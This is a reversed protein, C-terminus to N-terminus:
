ESTWLRAGWPRATREM